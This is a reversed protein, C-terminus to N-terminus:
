GRQTESKMWCANVTTWFVSALFHTQSMCSGPTDEKKELTAKKKIQGEKAILGVIVLGQLVKM